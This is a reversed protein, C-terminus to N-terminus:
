LSVEHDNIITKVVPTQANASCKDPHTDQCEKPHVWTNPLYITMCWIQKVVHGDALINIVHELHYELGCM